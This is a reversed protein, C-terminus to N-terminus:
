PRLRNWAKAQARVLTVGSKALRGRRILEPPKGELKGTEVVLM